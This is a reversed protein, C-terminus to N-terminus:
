TTVPKRIETRARTTARAVEAIGATLFAFLDSPAGAHHTVDISDFSGRFAEAVRPLTNTLLLEELKPESLDPSEREARSLAADLEGARRKLELELEAREREVSLESRKQRLQEALAQGALAQEAEARQAARALEADLAARALEERHALTEKDRARERELRAEELALMERRADEEARKRQTSIRAQEEEVRERARLADLALRERYPAQLRAFVEESLVRVNQIEITDLVVGWGQATADSPSGEGALVPAIEALLAQAVREKRHTLCEELELNAVIRRTAGVFMECLIEGLASSQGDIMRYALLPEVVRYVALGTVEVGVKERTVQDASFTLKAISTPVLCVSDAPWKFCSAGHGTTVVRGRRLHILFEHPEAVVRGWRPLTRRAGMPASGPVTTSRSSWGGDAM